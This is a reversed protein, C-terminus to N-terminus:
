ENGKRDFQSQDILKEGIENVKAAEVKVEEKGKKDVKDKAMGFEGKTKNQKQLNIKYMVYDWWLKGCRQCQMATFSHGYFYCRIKRFFKDM